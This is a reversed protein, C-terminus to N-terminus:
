DEVVAGHWEYPEMGRKHQRWWRRAARCLGGPGAVVTVGMFGGGECIQRGNLRVYGGADPMTFLLRRWRVVDPDKTRPKLEYSRM